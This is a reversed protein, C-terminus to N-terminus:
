FPADIRFIVDGIKLNFSWAWHMRRHKGMATSWPKDKTKSQQDHSSLNECLHRATISHSFFKSTIAQCLLFPSLKCAVELCKM